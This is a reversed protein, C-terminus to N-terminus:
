LDIRLSAEINKEGELVTEHPQIIAPQLRQPFTVAKSLDRPPQDEDQESRLIGMWALLGIFIGQLFLTFGLVVGLGAVQWAFKILTTTWSDLDYSQRTELLPSLVCSLMGCAVHTSALHAPDELRTRRLLRYLMGHLLGGLVGALIAVAPMYVDAGSLNSVVGAVGAQLIGMPAWWDEAGGATWTQLGLEVLLAGACGLMCNTGVVGARELTVTIENCDWYKPNPLTLASM